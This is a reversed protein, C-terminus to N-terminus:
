ERIVNLFFSRGDEKAIFDNNQVEKRQLDSKLRVNCFYEINEVARDQGCGSTNM